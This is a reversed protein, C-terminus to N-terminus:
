LSSNYGVNSLADCVQLNYTYLAFLINEHCTWDKRTQIKTIYKLRYQNEKLKKFTGIKYYIFIRSM